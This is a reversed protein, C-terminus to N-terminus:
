ARLKAKLLQYSARMSKNYIDRVPHIIDDVLRFHCSKLSVTIYLWYRSVFCLSLDSHFIIFSDLVWQFTKKDEYM